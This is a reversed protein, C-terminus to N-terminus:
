NTCSLEKYSCGPIQHVEEHCIKCLTIGNDVDCSEIPNNVVPDIHHAHLEMEIDIDKSAGCKQCTWDDRELVMKRFQPQMERSSAHKFGEPWEKKGYTPCAHKCGESCYFRNEGILCNISRFRNTVMTTTPVFVKGCYLCNVGLLDLGNQQVLYTQEYKELKHSYTEYLPLNLKSVCGKSNYHNLGSNKEIACTPCGSGSDKLSNWKVSHITDCKKCKYDLKTHNNIYETSLLELNRDIFLQAVQEINPKANKKCYPCERNQQFKNWNMSNINNCHSCKYSLKIRNTIYETSLIIYGKKAFENKVFEFMEKKYICQCKVLYKFNPWYITRVKKCITCEFTVPSDNNIYEILKYGKKEFELNVFEYTLKKM